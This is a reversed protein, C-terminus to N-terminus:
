IISAFDKINFDKVHRTVPELHVFFFYDENDNDNMLPVNENSVEDYNVDASMKAFRKLNESFHFM